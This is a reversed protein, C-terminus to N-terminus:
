GPKRWGADPDKTLVGASQKVCRLCAFADDHMPSQWHLGEREELCLRCAVGPPPRTGAHHLVLEAYAITLCPGCVLSGQHGEVM